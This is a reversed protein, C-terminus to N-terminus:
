SGSSSKPARSRIPTLLGAPALGLEGIVPLKVTRRQTACVDWMRKRRILAYGLPDARDASDRDWIKIELREPVRNPACEFAWEPSTTNWRVESQGFPEYDGEVTVFPDSKGVADTTRLTEAKLVVVQLSATRAAEDRVLARAHDAMLDDARPGVHTASDDTAFKSKLCADILEEGKLATRRHKKSLPLPPAKDVNKVGKAKKTKGEPPAVDMEGGYKIPPRKVVKKLIAHRHLEKASWLGKEEMMVTLELSRQDWFDDGLSGISRLKKQLTLFAAYPSPEGKSVRRRVFHRFEKLTIEGDGDNDASLMLFRELQEDFLDDGPSPPHIREGIKHKKLEYTFLNDGGQTWGLANDLTYVDQVTISIDTVGRVLAMHRFGDGDVRTCVDGVTMRCWQEDGQKERLEHMKAEVAPPLADDCRVLYDPLCRRARARRDSFAAGSRARAPFPM